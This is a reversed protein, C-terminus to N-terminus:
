TFGVSSVELTYDGPKLDRFVYHGSADTVTALSTGLIKVLCGPLHEGSETDIVHGVINADTAKTSQAYVCTLGIAYAMLAIILRRTM